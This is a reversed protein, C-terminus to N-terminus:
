PRDGGPVPFRVTVAGDDTAVRWAADEAALRAIQLSLAAISADADFPTLEVSVGDAARVRISMREGRAAAGTALTELVAEALDPDAAAPAPRDISDVEVAPVGEAVEAAAEAADVTASEGAGALAREVDRVRAVLTAVDTARGRIEDGATEPNRDGRAVDAAAEAVTTMEAQTAGAVLQTLVALRRERRREETVDRCVLLHGLARGRADTVPDASVTLVRGTDLDVERPGTEAVAAPDPLTPAVSDLAEGVAGARTADLASEAAPNLDHIRGVESVVVVAEAMEDIVRDRGVVSAVPLTEFVRYRWVALGFLGASTAATVPTAAPRQLTTALFPLTLAAGVAGVFLATQGAPFAKHRYTTVLVLFVGVLALASALVVTVGLLANLASTPVSGLAGVLALGGSPAVLLVLLLGVATFAVPSTERDRGTYQLAFLFWLGCVVASLDYAILLWFGGISETPGWQIGLAARVPALDVVALHLLSGGLLALAVGILPRTTPDGRVRWMTAVFAGSALVALVSAALAAPSTAALM